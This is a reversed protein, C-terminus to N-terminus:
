GNWAIYNGVRPVEQVHEGVEGVEEMSGTFREQWPELEVQLTEASCSLRKM